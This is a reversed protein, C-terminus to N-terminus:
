SGPSPQKHLIRSATPNLCCLAGQNLNSLAQPKHQVDVGYIRQKERTVDHSHVERLLTTTSRLTELAVSSGDCSEDQFFDIIFCDFEAKKGFDDLYIKREWDTEGILKTHLTLDFGWNFKQKSGRM